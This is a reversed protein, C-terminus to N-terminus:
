TLEPDAHSGGPDGPVDKMQAILRREFAFRKTYFNYFFMIGIVILKTIYQHADLIPVKNLLYILLTSIGIGIISSAISIAFAARLKRKLAFVYRRQLIFNVLFGCSASIVNSVTKPLGTYVLVLYLVYDVITAVLSTSAFRLKPVVFQEIAKRM